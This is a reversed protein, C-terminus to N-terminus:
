LMSSVPISPTVQQQLLYAAGFVFIQGLDEVNGHQVCVCVVCVCVCVYVCV